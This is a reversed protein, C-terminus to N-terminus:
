IESKKYINEQLCCTMLMFNFRLTLPCIVHLEVLQRQTFLTWIRLKKQDKNKQIRVLFFETKPCKERLTDPQSTFKDYVLADLNWIVLIARANLIKM